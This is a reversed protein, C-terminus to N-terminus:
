EVTFECEWIGSLVLPQDAKSSGIMKSVILKYQGDSVNDLSINVIAAGDTIEAMETTTGEVVVNGSMDVIKYSEIGFLEFERYPAVEPNVMNVNLIIEEAVDAISLELEETAQEYTTGIVAGNWGIIDKFFGQLIGTSALVTVGTVCVCLVLSAVAVIPRKFFRSINKSVVKKEMEDVNSKSIEKAEWIHKENIEGLIEYLNESTM